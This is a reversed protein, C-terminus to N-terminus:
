GKQKKRQRQIHNPSEVSARAATKAHARLRQEELKAARSKAHKAMRKHWQERAKPTIRVMSLYRLEEPGLKRKKLLYYSPESMRELHCFEPITLSKEFNKLKAENVAVPM